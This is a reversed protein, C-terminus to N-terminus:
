KKWTVKGGFQSVFWETSRRMEDLTKYDGEFGIQDGFTNFHPKHDWFSTYVHWPIKDMDNQIKTIKKQAEFAKM